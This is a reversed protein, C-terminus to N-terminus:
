KSYNKILNLVINAVIKSIDDVPENMGNKLWHKTIGVYGSLLFTNFYDRENVNEFDFHLNVEYLGNDEVERHFDSKLKIHKKDGFDGYLMLYMEKHKATFRFIDEFFSVSYHECPPYKALVDHFENLMNLEIKELLDYVDKYHIYFTGRNLDTLECLEKVSIEEINKKQLVKIMAQCLNHETKRIRRDKEM